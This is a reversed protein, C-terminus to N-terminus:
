EGKKKNNKELRNKFIEALKYDRCYCIPYSENCGSCKEKTIYNVM